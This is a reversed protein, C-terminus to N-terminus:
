HYCVKYYKSIRFLVKCHRVKPSDFDMVNIYSHPPVFRDYDVKGMVVPVLKMQYKSLLKETAYDECLANEATFYFKYQQLLTFIHVRTKLLYLSNDVDAIM